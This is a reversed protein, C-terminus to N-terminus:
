PVTESWGESVWSTFARGKGLDMDEAKPRQTYPIGKYVADLLKDKVQTITDCNLVKVPIETGNESDPCICSLTQLSSSVTLSYSHFKCLELRKLSLVRIIYAKRGKLQARYSSHWNDIIQRVECLAHLSLIFPWATSLGAITLLKLQIQYPEM